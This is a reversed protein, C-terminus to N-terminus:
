FLYVVHGPWSKTIIPFDVQGWIPQFVFKGATPHINHLHLLLCLSKLPLILLFLILSLILVLILILLYPGLSPDPGLDPDLSPDPDLSFSIMPFSVLIIFSRVMLGGRRPGRDVGEPHNPGESPHAHTTCFQSHSHKVCQWLLVKCLHGSCINHVLGVVFFIIQFCPM